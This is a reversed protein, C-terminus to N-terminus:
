KNAGIISKSEYYKIQDKLEQIDKEISKTIPINHKGMFSSLNQLEEQVEM